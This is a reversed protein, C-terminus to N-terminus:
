QGDRTQGCLGTPFDFDGGFRVVMQRKFVRIHAHKFDLDRRAAGGQHVVVAMVVNGYVQTRGFEQVLHFALRRHAHFELVPLGGYPTQDKLAPWAASNIRVDEFDIGALHLALRCEEGRSVPADFYILKPKTM